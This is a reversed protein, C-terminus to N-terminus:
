LVLVDSWHPHVYGLTNKLSVRLMAAFMPASRAYSAYPCVPSLPAGHVDDPSSRDDGLLGENREITPIVSMPIPFIPRPIRPALGRGRMGM